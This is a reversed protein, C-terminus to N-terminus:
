APLSTKLASAISQALQEMDTPKLMWAWLKQAMLPDLDKEFPHGTLLIVPKTWNREQLAHFLAIGGMEPMVVDSLILAVEDGRTVLLDLAQLGNAAEVITYNLAGLMDVLAERLDDNDEVVLLVEGHGQADAASASSFFDSSPIPEKALAPLYITFTTGVGVQTKVDIHGEHQGVIGYVQALGLGTGEGPAKTTYFPDFIHPLVHPPIGSGTDAVTLAVWKGAAMQPLPAVGNAVVVHNLSIRLSGGNVMAHGANIALNMVVQQMRTPDAHVTYDDSGYDLRVAISEPLTRELLKVEEKVQPLLDLRQRELVSRRSFDLVQRILATAHHAQETITTLRSRDRDSLGLSRTLMQSYLVIIGMINNFDHAMGAALQGVTALREQQQSQVQAQREMTIENILMVWQEPDSGSIVPRAICAFVRMGVEIEHWLGKPPSTLLEALPRDALHTLTNDVIDPSLASLVVKAAPNDLIIRGHADMLLLGQPVSQMLQAMQRAQARVQHLLRKQEIEARRRQIIAWMGNLLAALASCDAETYAEAKNAAVAIAVIKDGDFVPLGLFRKIPAHDAPYSKKHVADADYDNVIVAKRLRICDGWMGSEAIPLNIPKDAASYSAVADNSWAHIAMITEADDVLGIFALQSQASQLIGKLTFDLLQAQPADMLKHLDALVQLRLTHLELTQETQKREIAYRIARALLGSSVEGKVLFDQAGARVAEVALEADSLGTLVVIPVDPAQAYIQLFSTLGQSDPLGLDLLVVDPKNQALHELSTSIRGVHDLDVNSLEDERLFERFLRADGPNDEVLLVRITKKHM